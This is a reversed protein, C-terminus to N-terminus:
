LWKGRYNYRQNRKRPAEQAEGYILMHKGLM